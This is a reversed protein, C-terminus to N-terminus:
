LECKTIKQYDTKCGCSITVLVGQGLPWSNKRASPTSVGEGLDAGRGRSDQIQWEDCQVTIRLNKLNLFNGSHHTRLHSNVLTQM